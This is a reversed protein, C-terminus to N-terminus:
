KPFRPVSVGLRRHCLLTSHFFSKKLISIPITVFDQCISYFKLLFQNQHTARKLPSAVGWFRGRPPLNVWFTM